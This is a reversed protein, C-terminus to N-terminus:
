RGAYIVTVTATSTNGASDTVTLTFNYTAPGNTGLQAEAVASNGHIIAVSPTPPATWTFTMPLGGPDTTASADLIIDKILVPNNIPVIVINPNSSGGGGGGGGGGGPLTVNLSNVSATPSYALIAGSISEIVNNVKPPTDTTFGVSVASTAGKFNGYPGTSSQTISGVFTVSPIPTATVYTTDVKMTTVQIVATGLNALVAPPTPIPSGTPVAFITSTLTNTQPNYALTERVELAGGALAALVDAPLQPSITTLINNLAITREINFSQLSQAAAPATSIIVVALAPVLASVISRFRM